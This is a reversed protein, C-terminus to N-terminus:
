AKPESKGDFRRSWERLIRERNKAMWEMDQKTTLASFPDEPYDSDRVTPVVTKSALMRYQVGYAEMVPRSVAWDLFITAAPHPHPKRIMANAEVEFGSGERPYVAKIPEGLQKQRTARYDFSIGIPFEGQGALKAPKSGSHTYLAINEHLGQLLSWGAEEGLTQLIGAVLMFGTGSSAPNPATLHGKYIPKTLDAYSEPLPLKLRALEQTNCVLATMFLKIGVWLPPTNKQDMYEPRLDELGAPAYPSLMNEQRCLDVGSAALGWIVDAVPNDKEALLRSTIIGTSDRIINLEIDPHSERWLKLYAPMEDDEVTTYVNLPPAKPSGGGGCGAFFPLTAFLALAPIPFLPRNM